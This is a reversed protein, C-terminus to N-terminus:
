RDVAKITDFSILRTERGATAKAEHFIFEVQRKAERWEQGARKNPEM